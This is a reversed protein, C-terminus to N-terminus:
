LIRGLPALAQSGPPPIARTAFRPKPNRFHIRYTLPFYTRDSETEGPIQRSGRLPVSSASELV